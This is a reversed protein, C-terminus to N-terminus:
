WKCCFSKLVYSNFGSMYVDFLHFPLRMESVFDRVKNTVETNAGSSLLESVVAVHGKEM